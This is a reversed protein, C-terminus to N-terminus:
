FIKDGTSERKITINTGVMSFPCEERDLLRNIIELAKTSGVIKKESLINAISTKTM